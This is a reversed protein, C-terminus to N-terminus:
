ENVRADVPPVEISPYVDRAVVQLRTGLAEERDKGQVSTSFSALLCRGIGASVLEVHGILAREGVRMFVSLEGDYGRPTNVRRREIVEVEERPLRHGTTEAERACDTWRVLRAARWVRLRLVSSSPAHRLVTWSGEEARRWARAEPLLLRVGHRALNVRSLPGRFSAEPETETVTVHPLAAQPEALPAPSPCATTFGVLAVLRPAALKRVMRARM